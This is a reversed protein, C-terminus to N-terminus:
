WGYEDDDKDAGGEVGNGEFTDTSLGGIAAMGLLGEVANAADNDEDDSQNPSATPSPCTDWLLQIQANLNLRGTRRRRPRRAEKRGVELALNLNLLESLYIMM